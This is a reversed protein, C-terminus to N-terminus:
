NKILSNSAFNNIKGVIFCFINKEKQYKLIELSFCEFFVGGSRFTHRQSDLFNWVVLRVPKKNWALASRERRDTSVNICLRHRLWARKLIHFLRKQLELPFSLSLPQFIIQYHQSQLRIAYFFHSDPLYFNTHPSCALALAKLCLIWINYLVLLLKTVDYYSSLSFCIWSIPILKNWDRKWRM